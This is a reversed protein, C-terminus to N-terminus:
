SKRLIIIRTSIEKVDSLMWTALGHGFREDTTASVVEEERPWPFCGVQANRHTQKYHGVDM